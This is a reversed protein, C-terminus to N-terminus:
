YLNVKRSNMTKSQNPSALFIAMCIRLMRQLQNSRKELIDWNAEDNEENTLSIAGNKDGGEWHDLMKGLIDLCYNIAEITLVPKEYKERIIGRKKRFLIFNWQFEVFPRL